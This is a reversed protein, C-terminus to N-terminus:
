RLASVRALLQISGPVHRTQSYDIRIKAPAANPRDPPQATPGQNHPDAAGNIWWVVSEACYVTLIHLLHDLWVGEAETFGRQEGNFTMTQDQPSIEYRELSSAFFQGNKAIGDEVIWVLKQAQLDWTVSKVRKAQIAENDPASGAATVGEQAVASGACVLIMALVTKM